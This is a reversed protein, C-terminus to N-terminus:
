CPKQKRPFCSRSSTTRKPDANRAPAKPKQSFCSRFFTTLRPDANRAPAKTKQSFVRGPFLRPTRTPTGLPPEQKRAFCSRLLRSGLVLAVKVGVIRFGQDPLALWEFHSHFHSLWIWTGDCIWATPLPHMVGCAGRCQARAERSALAWPDSCGSLLSLLHYWGTGAPDQHVYM